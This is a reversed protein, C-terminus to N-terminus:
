QACMHSKRQKAKGPVAWKKHAQYMSKCTEKGEEWELFGSAWMSQTIVAHNWLRKGMTGHM